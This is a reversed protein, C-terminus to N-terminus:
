CLHGNRELLSSKIITFRDAKIDFVVRVQVYDEASYDEADFVVYNGDVIGIVIACHINSNESYLKNLDVVAAIHGTDNYLTVKGANWSVIFINGNFDEVADWAIDHICVPTGKTQGKFDVCAIKSVRNKIDGLTILMADKQIQLIQIYKGSNAESMMIEDLAIEQSFDHSFLNDINTSLIRTYVDTGAQSLEYNEYPFVVSDEIIALASGNHEVIYPLRYSNVIADVAVRTFAKDDFNVLFIRSTQEETVDSVLKLFIFGLNATADVVSEQPESLPIQIRENSQIKEINCFSGDSFISFLSNSSLDELITADPPCTYLPKSEKQSIDCILVQELQETRAHYVNKGGCLPRAWKYLPLFDLANLKNYNAM